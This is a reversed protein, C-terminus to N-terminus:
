ASYIKLTRETNKQIVTKATELEQQLANHETDLLKLISDYQKDKNEIERSKQEYEAEAIAIAKENQQESIDLANTYIISTWTAHKLGTGVETPNTYNVRELSVTGTELAYKLWDQSNMLGDELVYWRPGEWTTTVTTSEGIFDTGYETTTVNTEDVSSTMGDKQQSPGNMRHWLNVYWQAEDKDEYELIEEDIYEPVDYPEPEHSEWEGVAENYGDEDFIMGPEEEEEELAGRLDHEIIHYYRKKLAIWEPDSDDGKYCYMLLEKASSFGYMTPNALANQADAASYFMDVIYSPLSNPYSPDSLIEQAKRGVFDEIDNMLKKVKDTVLETGDCNEDGCDFTVSTGFLDHTHVEDCSDHGCCPKGKLADAIERMIAGDGSTGDRGGVPTTWWFEGQWISPEGGILHGLTHNFHRVYNYEPSSPNSSCSFCGGVSGNMFKDYLDWSTGPNASPTWNPDEIWFDDKNPQGEKWEDYGEKWKEYGDSYEPNKVQKYEGTPIPDIGYHALFENIDASDQYNAGDLESVMIQGKTNVLCYQNKLPGYLSLQMGTCPVYCKDGNQDYTRYIFENKNLANIYKRSAEATEHALGMKAATISQSRLENDSLRSTISLLKAQSAALGM